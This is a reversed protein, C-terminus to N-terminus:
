QQRKKNKNSNEFEDRQKKIAKEVEKYLDARYGCFFMIELLVFFPALVLALQNISHLPPKKENNSKSEIKIENKGQNLNDLLAPSRGEFFQHGGIQM